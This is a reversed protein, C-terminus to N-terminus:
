DFFQATAQRITELPRGLGTRGGEQLQVVSVVDGDTNVVAGGSMGEIFAVDFVTVTTKETIVDIEKGPLDLAAVTGVRFQPIPFGHGYGLAAITQGIAPATDALALAPASRGPAMLVALDHTENKYVIWAIQGDLLMEPALCHFATMWYRRDENISFATCSQTLAGDHSILSATSQKLREHLAEATLPRDYGFGAAALTVLLLLAVVLLRKM